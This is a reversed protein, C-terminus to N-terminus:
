FSSVHSSKTPKKMINIGDIMMINPHEGGKWDWSPRKWPLVSMLVRFGVCMAELRECWVSANPRSTFHLKHCTRKLTNARLDYYPTDSMQM